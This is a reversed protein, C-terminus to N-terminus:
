VNELLIRVKSWSIPAKLLPKKAAYRTPLYEIIEIDDTLVEIFHRWDFIDKFGSCMSYLM